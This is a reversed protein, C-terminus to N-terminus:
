KEQEKENKIKAQRDLYSQLIYAAAMKDVVQKRRKRSVDAQLLVNEASVTTLREDTFTYPLRLREALKRAYAEVEEAKKGKSGDMNFPLGFILKEVEYEQCVQRLYAAEQEASSRPMVVHAQATWGMQDSLAIGVRKTGVDLGMLRM